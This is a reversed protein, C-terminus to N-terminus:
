PADGLGVDAFVVSVKTSADTSSAMVLLLKQAKKASLMGNRRDGTRTLPGLRGRRASDQYFRFVADVSDQTNFTVSTADFGDRRDNRIMSIDAGPYAPAFAPASEPWERSWFNFRVGKRGKDGEIQVGVGDGDVSVTQTGGDSHPTSKSCASLLIAAALLLEPRVM